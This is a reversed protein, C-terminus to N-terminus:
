ASFEILYSLKVQDTNYVMHEDNLIGSVGGKGYVSHFGAPPSIFSKKYPAIHMNGLVADVLFMFAKRGKIAGSGSSYCSNELSTYGASKKWDSALYVSDGFLAGTISVGVLQKPLLFSKRLLGTINCSKSGHYLLARNSHNYENKIESEIDVRDDQFEPKEEHRGKNEEAIKKTILNIREKDGTRVVKWINAIKMSGLYGHVNKTCSPIKLYLWQGISSKPDIWSMEDIPMGDFPDNESQEIPTTMLASEFADLDLNWSNINSGSLIWTSPAAGVTKKKPIKSYLISTLDKLDRDNVQADINEGVAKVRKLSETLINRAEDIANQTPIAGTAMSGRAYAVTAVNLDRMLSITQPDYKLAIKDKKAVIPVSKAGDNHKITKADPLGTSRTAQPRVLYCDKGAKARLTKIGSVTAWEGRKDNKSHLQSEYEKQAEEESSCEVFQFDPHISGTRGWEFYCYWNGNKKSKCILAVYFKNSDKGDQTFCGLDCIKTGKFEGDKTAPPGFCQFDELSHGSPIEKKGLKNM